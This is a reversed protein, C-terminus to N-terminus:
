KQVCMIARKGDEDYITLEFTSNGDAFYDPFLTSAEFVFTEDSEVIEDDVPSFTACMTSNANSSNFSLSLLSENSPFTFDGLCVPFINITIFVLNIVNSKVQDPM